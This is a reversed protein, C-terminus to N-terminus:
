RCQKRYDCCGQHACNGQKTSSFAPSSLNCLASRVPSVHLQVASVPHGAELTWARIEMGVLSLLVDCFMYVRSFLYYIASVM